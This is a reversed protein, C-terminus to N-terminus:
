KEVGASFGARNLAAVLQVADFAGTIEFRTAKPRATDGTVGGVSYIANRIADCCPQCCNHIGSISLREVKGQPVKSVAKMAWQKDGTDGYFGAAAIAALAKWAAIDNRAALSVTGNEMSCEFDIGEVDDLANSVGNVCGQCCLHVGKLVLKIDTNTTSRM